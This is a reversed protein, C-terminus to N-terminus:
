RVTTFMCPNGNNYYTMLKNNLIFSNFRVALLIIKDYGLINNLISNYKIIILLLKLNLEVM